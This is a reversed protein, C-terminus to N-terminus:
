EYVPFSTADLEINILMDYMHIASRLSYRLSLKIDDIKSSTAEAKIM